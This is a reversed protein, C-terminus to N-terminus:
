DHDTELTAYDGLLSRLRKRADSLHRRSMAESVDVRAAIEAHKWGELDHLLVIERQVASLHALAGLLTDRLETRLVATDAGVATAVHVGHEIPEAARVRLYDGRNHATNRVIRVLWAGFRDPTRCENIHRWAAVFADQCVDEADTANNVRAFAVLYAARFHRRMLTEFAAADGLRVRAVLSADSEAMTM